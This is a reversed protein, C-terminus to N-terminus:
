ICHNGKKKKMKALIIELETGGMMEQKHTLINLESLFPSIRAASGNEPM